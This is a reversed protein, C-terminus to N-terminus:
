PLKLDSPLISVKQPVFHYDATNFRKWTARMNENGEMHQLFHHLLSVIESMNEVEYRSHHVLQDNWIVEGVGVIARALYLASAAILSDKVDVLSPILLATELIFLSMAHLKPNYRVTAADLDNDSSSSMTFSADLFHDLFHFSTVYLLDFKLGMCIQMEMGCIENTSCAGDTFFSVDVAKAAKVEHL